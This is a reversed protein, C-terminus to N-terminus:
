KVDINWVLKLSPSGDAIVQAQTRGVPLKVPNKTQWRRTVNGGGGLYNFGGGPDVKAGDPSCFDLRVNTLANDGYVTYYASVTLDDGNRVPAPSLDMEVKRVADSPNTSKVCAPDPLRIPAADAGADVPAADQEVPTSGGSDDSTTPPASPTPAPATGGGDRGDLDDEALTRKENGLIANCAFVPVIGLLSVFLVLEPRKLLLEM